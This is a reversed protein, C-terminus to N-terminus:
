PTRGAEILRAAYRAVAEPSYRGNWPMRSKVAERDAFHRCSRAFGWAASDDFGTAAFEAKRASRSFSDPRADAFLALTVLASLARGAWSCAAPHSNVFEMQGGYRIESVM